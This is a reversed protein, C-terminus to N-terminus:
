PCDGWEGLLEFVDDMNVEGDDDLDGECCGWDACEGWYGLLIFQDNIDVTGDGNLDAPCDPPADELWWVTLETNTCTNEQDLNDSTDSSEVTCVLNDFKAVTDGEETDCVDFTLTVTPDATGTQFAIVTTDWSTPGSSDPVLGGAFGGGGTFRVSTQDDEGTVLSKFTLTIWENADAEIVFKKVAVLSNSESDKFDIVLCEGNDSYGGTSAIQIASAPVGSERKGKWCYWPYEFTGNVLGGALSPSGVAAILAGIGFVRTAFKLRM